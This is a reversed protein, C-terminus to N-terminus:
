WVWLGALIILVIAVVVVITAGRKGGELTEGVGMDMILHRIGAVLHYALAALVAWVIFKSLPAQLATKLANFSQESSLSMDLMWLLILIGILLVVGSVRHTISVLATIPFKVTKLDLNVPRNDNM